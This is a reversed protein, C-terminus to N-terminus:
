KEKGISDKLLIASLTIQKSTLGFNEFLESMEGSEGFRDQMGIRRIPTPLKEGLLESVAGGLGGAIQGEEATIILGTKKASKLITNEDLPKITAVHVVEASINHKKLEQASMLAQYTMTGTAIITVDNGEVFVQAKGIEFPTNKSTIM